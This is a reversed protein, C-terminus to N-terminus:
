TGDAEKQALRDNAAAKWEVYNRFAWVRKPIFCVLANEGLRNARKFAAFTLGM